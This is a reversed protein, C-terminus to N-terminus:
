AAPPLRKLSEHPEVVAVMCLRCVGYPALGDHHCLTPLDVGAARVAELVTADQPVQISRGNVSLDVM